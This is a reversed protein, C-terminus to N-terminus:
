RGLLSALVEVGGRVRHPEASTFCLRVHTPYPGFSTGPALLLGREVCDSLLGDVGREDLHDKVDLFLFTSGEPRAVGLRDAAFDGLEQYKARAERVWADAMGELARQAVVQSATPTSYFTHTSVGKLAPMAHAPGVIFGCRNGAMGYAKSFSHAAFTREPALARTYTHEGRYVYHEYVEDTFIWLGNARAWGVMAAIMPEPLVRGTPNSPTNWYVAITRETLKAQLAEVASEADLVDEFPVPVSVGGFARVIGAILPWYPALILVEDGAKVLAGAVAGLGGTGGATVLVEDPTTSVGTDRLQTDCIAGLLGQSGHVSTYRHVGPFEAVTVDEMRCGEAPEMWTDGIHLPYTEGEYHALRKALASYPSAQPHQAVDPYRPM